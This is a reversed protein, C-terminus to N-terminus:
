GRQAAALRAGLAIFLGGLCRNLWTGLQSATRLRVALFSAGRAILINWITGTTNFLTGLLLFAAVKTSSAPDIFQPMFALFFLAIKPNLLNTLFGQWFVRSRKATDPPAQINLRLSGRSLLMSVGLYILYAAGVWKVITFAAASSALIASLGLAAASIHVFCGAGIGLAAWVGTTFGRSTSRTLVYLSDAGPAINLLIASVVYLGLDHIGFVTM